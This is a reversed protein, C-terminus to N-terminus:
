LAACVDPRYRHLDCEGQLGQRRTRDQGICHWPLRSHAGSGHQQAHRFLQQRNDARAGPQRAQAGPGGHPLLQAVHRERGSLGATRARRRVAPAGRHESPRCVRSYEHDQAVWQYEGQEFDARARELVAAPDGLYSALKAAYKEPGLDNLHVPNADYWGMYRQYVARANHAVTGYYQRTYWCKELEAPLEISEAIESSVMGQNLMSLAQDNIFKYMAATNVLYENVVENGWHPWNHSQFAVEVQTGYLGVAEMIYKAWANGDRVQAGRLTYLNHLTGCCNEAVWLAKLEPFWMNMEAPAETGPTLQFQITVGDIVLETGTQAIELSPSIYSTTGLSQGIGIGMALSGQPGKELYAGYQYAARRGMARGAYSNESVAHEEFHEPVIVPVKDGALQEELSMSAKAAEEESVVGKIGGYHDIHPHSIIVAKVPREGLHEEVLAMAARTCEVSMLTDIVIWGTQGEILTLNAMDYGRVQYIGDIVKFLGYVHNNRTNEWLSPNAPAPADAGEVFTYAKQSWIVRGADDCIELADPAAILNRTANEYESRDEFDLKDYWAVNVAETLSSADKVEDTLDAFGDLALAAGAACHRCVRRHGGAGDGGFAKPSQRQSRQM